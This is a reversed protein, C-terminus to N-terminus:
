KKAFGLTNLINDDKYYIDERYQIRDQADPYCTYYEIFLPMRKKLFVSTPRLKRYFPKEADPLKEYYETEKEEMKELYKKGKETTPKNGVLLGLREVEWEDYENYQYLLDVLDFPNEVRVCGHSFTRVRRKFAGKNNTDHLYVSETNSFDFKVQGLANYRGSSQILRYPINNRNVNNWDISEPAVFKGNRADKIYLHERNIVATNSKCLKHYYENKIIDYPINWEPNLVLRRIESHLLPTEAKYARTIGNRTRGPSNQPNQTKGCCIRTKFACENKVFAQLTFDPINVAIYDEGKTAETRWRLRELNASIRRCYYDIPRNLKEITEKGLSDAAPINNHARFLNIGDLVQKTLMNTDPYNAALEGTVRLRQCVLPIIDSNQGAKITKVPIEKLVTDKIPYLRQLEKQLRVYTASKPQYNDLTNSLAALGDLVQKHFNSDPQVMKYLWKGGNVIKPDTAGYQLAHAYKLYADSLLCELNFLADYLNDDNAVKHSQLETLSSKISDYGFFNAPIGHEPARSLYDMLVGVKHEQCGNITWIPSQEAIYYQKLYDPMSHASDSDLKEIRQLFYVQYDNNSFTSYYKFWHPKSEVKGRLKSCSITCLIGICLLIARKILAPRKIGQSHSLHSTPKM